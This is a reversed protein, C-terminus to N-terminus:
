QHVEVNADVTVAMKVEEVPPQLGRPSVAGVALVLWEPPMLSTPASTKGEALPEAVVARPTPPTPIPPPREEEMVVVVTAKRPPSPAGCEEALRGSPAWERIHNASAKNPQLRQGHAADVKRGGGRRARLVVLGVLAFGITAILVSPVLSAATGQQDASPGGSIKGVIVIAALFFSACLCPALLANGVGNMLHAGMIGRDNVCIVLLASVFPLLLGNVLQAAIIVAMTPMALLSPLTGLVVITCMLM